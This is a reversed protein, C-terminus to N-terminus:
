IASIKWASGIGFSAKCKPCSEIHLPIVAYCNPCQGKPGNDLSEQHLRKIEAAELVPDKWDSAILLRKTAAALEDASLLGAVQHARLIKLRSEQWVPDLRRLKVYVSALAMRLASPEMGSYHLHLEGFNTVLTLFTHVKTKSTILNLVTAVAMGELAGDVGFGGGIFGGGSTVSGPGSINLEAVEIFNISEKRAANACYMSSEDFSINIRSGVAFPFGNAGLVTCDNLSPHNSDKASM